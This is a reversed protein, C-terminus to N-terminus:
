IHILSLCLSVVTVLFLNNFRSSVIVTSDVVNSSIKEAAQAAAAAASVESRRLWVNQVPPPPAPEKFEVTKPKESEADPRSSSKSPENATETSDPQQRRDFCM